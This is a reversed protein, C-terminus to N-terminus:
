APTEQYKGRIREIRAFVESDTTIDKRGACIVTTMGSPSKLGFAPAITGHPLKLDVSALCIAVRKAQTVAGDCKSKLRVTIIEPAVGWEECVLAVLRGLPFTPCPFPDLHYDSKKVKSAKYKDIKEPPHSWCYPGPNATSLKQGCEPLECCRDKKAKVLNAVQTNTM